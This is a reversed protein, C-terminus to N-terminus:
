AVAQLEERLADLAAEPTPFNGTWNGHWEDNWRLFRWAHNFYAIKACQGAPLGRVDYGYIDGSGLIGNKM